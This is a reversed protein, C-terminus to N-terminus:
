HFMKGFFSGLRAFMSKKAKPPKTTQFIGPEVRPQLKLALSNDDRARLHAITALDQAQKEPDAHFVLPAEMEVHTEAPSSALPLPKMPEPPLAPPPVEPQTAAQTQAVELPPAPCGCDEAGETAASLKGGRFTVSDGARVQYTGNGLMENVILSASNGQLSRICTDGNASSAIAVHFSGPGALQLRFDPTVISDSFAGIRYDAEIAGTNMGVLLEPGSSSNSIAIGTKPCIRLEGGRTLRLLAATDGAEIHSGSLVRTGGAALVMSGRVAVDSAFVEGVPKQSSQQQAAAPIAVAWLLAIDRLRKVSTNFCLRSWNPAIRL